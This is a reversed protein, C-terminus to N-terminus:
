GTGGCRNCEGRWEVGRVAAEGSQALLISAMEKYAYIAWKGGGYARAHANLRILAALVDPPVSRHRAPPVGIAALHGAVEADTMRWSRGEITAIARWKFNQHLRVAAADDGLHDALIALALQAPGSGGYGWAFGDPSHDFLDNRPPLPRAQGDEEVTVTVGHPSRIGKYIKM